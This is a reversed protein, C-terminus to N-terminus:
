VANGISVKVWIFANEEIIHLQLLPWNVTMEAVCHFLGKNRRARKQSIWLQFAYNITQHSTLSYFCDYIKSLANDEMDVKCKTCSLFLLWYDINDDLHRPEGLHCGTASFLHKEWMWRWGRRWELKLQQEVMFKGWKKTYTVGVNNRNLM